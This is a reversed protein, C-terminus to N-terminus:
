NITWLPLTVKSGLSSSLRVAEIVELIKFAEHLTSSSRSKSKNEDKFLGCSSRKPKEINECYFVLFTKKKYEKSLFIRNKKTPM